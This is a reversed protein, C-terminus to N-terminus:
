NSPPGTIARRVRGLLSSRLQSTAAQSSRALSAAPFPVRPAAELASVRSALSNYHQQERDDLSDHSDKLRDLGYANAKVVPYLGGDHVADYEPSEGGAWRKWLPGGSTIAPLSVKARTENVAKISDAQYEAWADVAIAQHFVAENAKLLAEDGAHGEFLAAIAALVAMLATTIALYNIWPIREAKRDAEEVEEKIREQISELPVEPAGSV